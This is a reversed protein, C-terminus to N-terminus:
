FKFDIYIFKLKEKGRMCFDSSETWENQLTYKTHSVSMKEAKNWLPM